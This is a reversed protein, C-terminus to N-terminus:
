RRVLNVRICLWWSVGWSVLTLMTSIIGIALASMGVVLMLVSWTFGGAVLAADKVATTVVPNKQAVSNTPTNMSM